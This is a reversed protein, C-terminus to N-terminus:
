SPESANKESNIWSCCCSMLQQKVGKSLYTILEIFILTKKECIDFVQPLRFIIEAGPSSKIAVKFHNNTSQNVHICNKVYDKFYQKYPDINTGRVVNGRVINGRVVNGRFVMGRFVM